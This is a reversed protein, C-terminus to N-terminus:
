RAEARSQWLAFAYMDAKLEVIITREDPVNHGMNREVDLLVPGKADNAQLAAVLKRSHMPDVREDGEPFLVLASPYAAGSRVHHYPSYQLLAKLEDEKTPDGYESTWRNGLGKQSYRAMDTLAAEVIAYRYLDPRHTAASAILLGGSSSGIIGLRDPRTWGRRLLEESAAVFDDVSHQKKAGTAQRHWEEGFEGGGRVVAEAYVGGRELWAPLSGVYSPDLSIGHGGYAYLL